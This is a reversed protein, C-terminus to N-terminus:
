KEDPTTRIHSKMTVRMDDETYWVTFRQGDELVWTDGIKGEDDPSGMIEHVRAKTMRHEVDEYTGSGGGCSCLLVSGVVLMGALWKTRKRM